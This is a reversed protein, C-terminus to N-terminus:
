RWDALLFFWTSFQFPFFSFWRFVRANVLRPSVKVSITPTHTYNESIVVYDALVVVNSQIEESVCKTGTSPLNLWIAHSPRVLDSTLFTLILLFSLLIMRQHEMATKESERQSFSSLSLHSVNSHFIPFVAKPHLQYALRQLKLPKSNPIQSSLTKSRDCQERIESQSKAKKENWIM